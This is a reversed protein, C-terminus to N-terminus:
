SYWVEEKKGEGDILVKVVATCMVKVDGVWGLRMFFFSLLYFHGVDLLFGHTVHLYILRFLCVVWWRREMWFVQPCHCNTSGVGRFIRAHDATPNNGFPFPHFQVRLFNKCLPNGEVIAPSTREIFIDRM